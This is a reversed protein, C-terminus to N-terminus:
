HAHAAEAADTKELLATPTDFRKLTLPWRNEPALAKDGHCGPCGRQEGPRTWIWSREAVITKGNADLLEFRVSQNAAVEVYFSGDKEVPAEGLSREQTSDNELSMVRVRSIAAALRGKLGESSIYSNLSIFYGAKSDMNLTSWFRKPVPNAVLPVAQISSLKADSYILSGDTQKKLDFEYLDFKAQAAGPLASARSVIMLSTSLPRPSRYKAARSEVLSEGPDGKRVEALTGGLSESPGSRKVFIVSGDELEAADDRRALSQHECRFAELAAGDPRLTYLLRTKRAAETDQLPSSASALVRGDRLVTELWFNGPGFTIPHMQSGDTKSVALNFEPRGNKLSQVTFVIECDPLYAARQCDEICNTVQRKESGDANMEWIQWKAGANRQASFIIKAGTFDIQPDAAAFFEPTLERPHKSEPALRVIRSGRPFRQPANGDLITEAQVFLLDPRPSVRATKPPQAAEATSGFLLSAPFLCLVIAVTKPLCAIFKGQCVGRVV